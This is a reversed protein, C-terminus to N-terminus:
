PGGPPPSVVYGLSALKAAFRNGAEIAAPSDVQAHAIAAYWFRQRDRPPLDAPNLDIERVALGDGGGLVIVRRANPLAALGPHVLAEHYRYEDRSSFQLHSNLFM